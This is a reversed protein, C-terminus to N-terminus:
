RQAEAWLRVAETATSPLNDSSEIREMRRHAHDRLEAFRGLNYLSEMYWLEAQASARDAQITKELWVAAEPYQGGRLLLRSIAIRTEADDPRADIYQRYAGLALERTEEERHSDLIRSYVCQDYHRALAHLAAADAPNENLQRSLEVTKSHMRDEIKNMATAAQVRVANNEDTLAHKLVPGFAPRFSQDILAILAHKQQLSGFALIESFPALGASSEPDSEALTRALEEDTGANTDPFLAQYWEEFPRTKRMHWRALIMTALTGAPGLPGLTATASILMLPVRVDARIGPSFRYWLCLAGVIGLHFAMLIWGRAESALFAQLLICEASLAALAAAAIQRAHAFGRDDPM